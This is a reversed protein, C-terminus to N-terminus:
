STKKAELYAIRERLSGIAIYMDKDNTSFDKELKDISSFIYKIDQKRNEVREELISVKHFLKVLPTVLLSIIPIAIKLYEKLNNNNKNM